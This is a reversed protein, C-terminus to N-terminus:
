PTRLDGIRLRAATGDILILSSANGHSLWFFCCTSAFSPDLALRERAVELLLDQGTKPGVGAADQTERREPSGVAQQVPACSRPINECPPTRSSAFAPFSSHVDGEIGIEM